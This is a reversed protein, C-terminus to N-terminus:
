ATRVGDVAAQEEQIDEIALGQELNFSINSNEFLDDVDIASSFNSLLLDPLEDGEVGDANNLPQITSNTNTSGSEATIDYGILRDFVNENDQNSESNIQQDQLAVVTDM